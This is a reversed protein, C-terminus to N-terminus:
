QSLIIVDNPIDLCWELERLKGVWLYLVHAYVTCEFQHYTLHCTAKLSSSRCTCVECGWRPQEQVAGGVKWSSVGYCHYTTKHRGYILSDSWCIFLFSLTYLILVCAVTIYLILIHLWCTSLHRYLHACAIHLSFAHIYAHTYSHSYITSLICTLDLDFGDEQFRRSNSSVLSRLSKPTSASATGAQHSRPPFVPTICKFATIAAIATVDDVTCEMSGCFLLVALIYLLWNFMFWLTDTHHTHTHTYTQTQIIHTHTDTRTRPHTQTHM